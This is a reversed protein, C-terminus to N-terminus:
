TARRVPEEDEAPADGEAEQETESSDFLRTTGDYDISYPMGPQGRRNPVVSGEMTGQRRWEVLLRREPAYLVTGRESGELATTLAGAAAVSDAAVSAITAEYDLVLVRMSDIVTDRTVTYRASRMRTDGAAAQQVTDTATWSQGIPLPRATPFGPPFFEEFHRRVDMVRYVDGPLDPSRITRIRGDRDELVFPRYLLRRTDPRVTGVSSETRLYLVEYYARLMTPTLRSMHVVGVYRVDSTATDRAGIMTARTNLEEYYVASDGPQALSPAVAAPEARGACAGALLALSLVVFVNGYSSM